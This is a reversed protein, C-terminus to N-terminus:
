AHQFTVTLKKSSTGAVEKVQAETAENIEQTATHMQSSTTKLRKTKTGDRSQECDNRLTKQNGNEWKVRSKQKIDMKEDAKRSYTEM